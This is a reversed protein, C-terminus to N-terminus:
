RGAIIPDVLCNGLIQRRHLVTLSGVSIRKEMPMGIQGLFQLREDSIQRM